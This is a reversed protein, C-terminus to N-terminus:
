GTLIDAIGLATRIAGVIVAVVLLGLSVRRLLPRGTTVTAALVALATGILLAAGVMEPSHRGLSIQLANAVVTFSFFLMAVTAALWVLGPLARGRLGHRTARSAGDVRDYMPAMAVGFLLFLSAFMAVNLLPPGFRGFDFNHPDIILSGALALLVVGFVVGRWRGAGVLLPGIVAYLSGGASGVAAGLFVILFLSGSFTIEGVAEGADTLTGVLEPASLHGSVRMALRGGLGGVVIGVPIGAVIGVGLRRLGERSRALM